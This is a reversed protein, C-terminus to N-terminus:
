VLPVTALPIWVQVTCGNGPTSQIEMKGGLLEARNTINVLGVGKRAKATDFGNGNDTIRLSISEGQYALEITVHAAAAHKIINNMQEQIIRYLALKTNNALLDENFDLYDLDVTIPQTAHLSEILDNVSEIFGLDKLTPPVLSRSIARVENIVSSVNKIASTLLPAAEHGATSRAMDLFLKITTLQQGINDHLEKGIELRQQEQGDLTAQTVQRQHALKQMVNKKELKKRDSIDAFSCVINRLEVKENVVPDASILLWVREKRLKHWVGMVVNKVPQLTQMVKYSPRESRLFQRGDEHIVDDYLEWIKKGLIESEPLQFLRCMVENTMEISGDANQLLVGVPLESILSRFRQASEKLAEGAKKRPTDDHIYLAISQVEPVDLLNHGRVMCWLWSGDKKLLRVIIFKLEPNEQKEREFSEFALVTDDPHLYQFANTGIVENVEFGLLRKVAPTSFTINGSTDLLLTLDLSDAILTRYFKESRALQEEARVRETINRGVALVGVKNGEDDFAYRVTQVFHMKHGQRNTFSIEDQWFGKQEFDTLASHPTSNRFHLEVLDSMKKGIAEASSVSYSEEAAKNWFIIKFQLDTTIVVDSLDDLMLKEYRKWEYANLESNM